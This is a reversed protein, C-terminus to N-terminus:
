AFIDAEDTAVPARGPAAPNTNQRATNGRSPQGKGQGAGQDGGSNATPGEPNPTDPAPQGTHHNGSGTGTSSSAAAAVAPAFGPDASHMTVALGQDRPTFQLSVRGFDGHSLTVGVPSASAASSDHRARAISDVLTAFDTPTETPAPTALAPVSASAPTVAMMPLATTTLSLAPAPGPTAATTTPASDTAPKPPTETSRAPAASQTASAAPQGAQTHSAAAPVNATRTLPSAVNATHVAMGPNSRNVPLAAPNAPSASAPTVQPLALSNAMALSTVRAAMTAAEGAVAPTTRAKAPAAPENSGQDNAAVVLAPPPLSVVAQITPQLASADPSASASAAMASATGDATKASRERTPPQASVAPKAQAATSVVGAALILSAPPLDKGPTATPRPAQVSAVQQTALASAFGAVSPTRTGIQARAAAAPATAAPNASRDSAHAAIAITM